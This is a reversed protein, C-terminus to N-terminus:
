DLIAGGEAIEPVRHYHDLAKLLMQRLSSDIPHRPNSPETYTWESGQSLDRELYHPSFNTLSLGSYVDAADGSSNDVQAMWKLADKRWQKEFGQEPTPAANVDIFIMFPGSGSSKTLARNFLRHVDGRVEQKDEREGQTHIVGPRHRSKAEVEIAQGTPEHVAVFEGHKQGRLEADDLFQVNCNLRAFIAAVALEYRAGQFQAPERIRAMLAEPLNSRHILTAVDWALSILYQVWGNPYAGMRGDRELTESDLGERTWRNYEEFCKMIFHREEEPLALHARRWKEGGLESRLVGLIFEHFTENPPRDQYVRTGLAWVKRGQFQVPAAFNIEIGYDDRLRTSSRIIKEEVERIVCPDLNRLERKAAEDADLCCKKYKRGSGCPCLDNRGVVRGNFRFSRALLESEVYSRAM